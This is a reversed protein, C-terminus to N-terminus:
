EDDFLRVAAMSAYREVSEGMLKVLAEENSLGYGSLHYQVQLHPDGMVRRHYAPMTATMARMLPEGPSDTVAVCYGPPIGAQNGGLHRYRRLLHRLPPYHALPAATPASMAAGGVRDPGGGGSQQLQAGAAAAQGGTRMGSLQADAVPGAGPDRLHAPPR